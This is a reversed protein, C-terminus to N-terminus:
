SEGREWPWFSLWFLLCLVLYKTIYKIVVENNLKLVIKSDTSSKECTNAYGDKSSIEYKKLDGVEDLHPEDFDDSDDM